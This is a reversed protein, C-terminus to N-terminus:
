PDEIYGVWPNASLVSRFNWCYMFINNLPVLEVHDDFFGINEAGPIRQPSSVATPAKRPASGGHRDILMRNVGGVSDPGIGGAGGGLVCNGNAGTYLNVTQGELDGACPWCDIWIGDGLVPTAAAKYVNAEKNFRDQPDEMSYKDTKDYLWGNLTYCCISQFTGNADFWPMDASPNDYQNAVQAPTLLFCTPCLLINTNGGWEPSLSNCWEMGSTSDMEAGGSANTKGIMQGNNDGRYIAYGACMQKLNSKCSAAQGNMEANALAPLLMAALIAIIAIVVLLEILTFAPWGGAAPEQQFKAKITM